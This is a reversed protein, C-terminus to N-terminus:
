AQLIWQGSGRIELGPSSVQAFLHLLSLSSADICAAESILIRVFAYEFGVDVDAAHELTRDATPSRHLQNARGEESQPGVGGEWPGGIDMPHGCCQRKRNGEELKGHKM